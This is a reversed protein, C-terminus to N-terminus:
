ERQPSPNKRRKLIVRLIFEDPVKFYSHRERVDDCFQAAERPHLLLEDISWGREQYISNFEDCMLDTFERKTLEVGYDAPNISVRPMPLIGKAAIKAKRPRSRL